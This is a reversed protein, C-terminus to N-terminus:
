KKSKWKQKGRSSYHFYAQYFWKFIPIILAYGLSSLFLKRENLRKLSTKIIFAFAFIYLLLLTFIIPWFIWFYVITFFVMISFLVTLWKECFHVFRKAFSLNKRIRMEKKLLDFYETKSVDMEKRIATDSCYNITTKKKKIFDNMVLEFNAYHEKIHKGFGGAEFYKEKKFAINEEFNIYPLRNLIFGFSKLQQFFRENRYLLNFFSRRPKVSSYNVVVEKEDNMKSSIIALWEASSEALDPPIVMVWDNSAAKLAINQAMKESYRTEQNLSSVKLGSHKKRLVGLASLSNDLSYDDVAVVESGPNLGSLVPPLFKKLNEEENRYTLILSLPVNETQTSKKQYLVRATFVFLYIIKMLYFFGFLGLLAWEYWHLSNVAYLFIDVM